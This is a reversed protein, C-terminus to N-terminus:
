EFSSLLLTAVFLVALSFSVQIAVLSRPFTARSTSQASGSKLIGIPAVGSARLAPALGFLMTTLAGTMCLFGLSRWDIRLDLYVPNSSSGLMHVIAPAAVRAFVLGLLCAVAAVLASEILVQQVLRSRSAGISLRLSM